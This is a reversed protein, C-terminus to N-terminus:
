TEKRATDLEAIRQLHRLKYSPELRCVWAGRNLGGVYSRSAAGGGEGRTQKLLTQGWDIGLVTPDLNTRDRSPLIQRNRGLEAGKSRTRKLWRIAANWM